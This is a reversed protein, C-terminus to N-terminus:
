KIHQLVHKILSDSLNSSTTPTELSPITTKNNKLSSHLPALSLSSDITSTSSSTEQLTSSTVNEVISVSLKLPPKHGQHQKEIVLHDSYFEDGILRRKRLSSCVSNNNNNFSDSVCSKITSKPSSERLDRETQRNIVISSTECIIQSSQLYLQHPSSSRSSGDNNVLSVGLCEGSDLVSM